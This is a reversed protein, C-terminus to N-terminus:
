DFIVVRGFVHGEDVIPKNAHVVLPPIKAADEADYVFQSLDEGNKYKAHIEKLPKALTLVHKCDRPMNKKKAAWMTWAPCNCTLCGDDYLCITYVTPKGFKPVRASQMPHTFIPEEKSHGHGEVYYGKKGSGGKAVATQAKTKLAM